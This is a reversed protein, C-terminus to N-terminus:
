ERQEREIYCKMAKAWWLYKEAWARSEKLDKLERTDENLYEPDRYIKMIEDDYGQIIQSLRTLLIDWRITAEENKTM